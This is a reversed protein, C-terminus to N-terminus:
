TLAGVGRLIEILQSVHTVFRTDASRRFEPNDMLSHKKSLGRDMELNRKYTEFDAQVDPIYSLFLEYEKSKALAERAFGFCQKALTSDLQHVRIFLRTTADEQGLYRNIM